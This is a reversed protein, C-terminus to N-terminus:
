ATFIPRGTTRLSELTNKNRAKDLEVKLKPFSSYDKIFFSVWHM